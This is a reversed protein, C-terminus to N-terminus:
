PVDRRNATPEQHGLVATDFAPMDELETGNEPSPSGFEEEIAEMTQADPLLSPPQIAADFAAVEARRAKARRVTQQAISEEMSVDWRGTAVAITAVVCGLALIGLVIAM